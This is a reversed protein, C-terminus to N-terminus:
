IGSVPKRIMLFGVRNKKDRDLCRQSTPKQTEERDGLLYVVQLYLNMSNKSNVIRNKKSQESMRGHM